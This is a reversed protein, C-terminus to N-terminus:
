APDPRAPCTCAGPAQPAQLAWDLVRAPRPPALRVAAPGPPPLRVQLAPPAGELPLTVQWPPQTPGLRCAVPQYGAEYTWFLTSGDKAAAVHLMVFGLVQGGRRADRVQAMCHVCLPLWPLLGARM